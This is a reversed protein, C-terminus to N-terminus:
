IEMKKEDKEQKKKIEDYKIYPGTNIFEKQFYDDEKHKM